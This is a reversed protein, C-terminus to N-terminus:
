VILTRMEKQNFYDRIYQRLAQEPANQIWGKRHVFAVKRGIPPQMSYYKINQHDAACTKAIFAIGIGMEVMSRITIISNTECMTRPQFHIGSFIKDSLVRLTSAKKSLIFNDDKFIRAFEDWTIPNHDNEVAYPHTAPISLLVEEQGILELQNKDFASVDNLAIVACDISEELIMKQITPLNTESIEITVGPFEKKYEPILTTLMKLGFLSTIGITIHSKNNLSRMQYYLDNKIDIVKEAAQVYLKGADTLELKGKARIFLPVGIDQELKALYQSLSSQSIYLEEAAKTINQKRAITLIYDLPKQVICRLDFVSIQFYRITRSKTDCKIHVSNHFCIFQIILHRRM